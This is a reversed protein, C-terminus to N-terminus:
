NMDVSNTTSNLCISQWGNRRKGEIKGLKVTKESSSVRRMLHGSCQLKLKQMLRGIFIWPQNRKPNVPQNGQLGLSEWSDKWCCLEFADIRWSKAKKITWSKCGYMVVPFSYSQSYPSTSLTSDRRKFVSDLNTLAKRGFLLCTKIERNCDGDM